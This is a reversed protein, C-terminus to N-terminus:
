RRVSAIGIGMARESGVYEAFAAVRRSIISEWWMKRVGECAVTDHFIILTGPRCFQLTLYFDKRVGDYSHDGDIFALDLKGELNNVLFERAEPSHSDGIFQRLNAIQQFNAKQELARPHTADDLSFTNGINLERNLLLCAGGSASGIEMYNVFQGRQDRYEKLFCILAAFEDPNQQLSLGGQHTYSSGFYSLDDTGSQRILERVRDFDQNRARIHDITDVGGLYVRRYIKKRIRGLLAKVNM